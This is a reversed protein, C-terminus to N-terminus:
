PFYFSLNIICYEGSSQLRSDKLNYNKQGKNNDRLMSWGANRQQARPMILIDGPLSCLPSCLGEAPDTLSTIQSECRYCAAWILVSDHMWPTYPTWILVSDHKWPTYPTWILVYDHMWPTYPTWILVYDHMWPTYPTWILVVYNTWPTYPTWILVSDHMLPTRTLVSDCM